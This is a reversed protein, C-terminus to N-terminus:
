LVHRIEIISCPSSDINVSAFSMLVAACASTLAACVSEFAIAAAGVAAAFVRLLVGVVSAIVASFVLIAANVALSAWIDESIVVAIPVHADFAFKLFGLLMVRLM